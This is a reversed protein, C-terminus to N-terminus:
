DGETLAPAPQFIGSTFGTLELELKAGEAHEEVTLSNGSLAKAALLNYRETPSLLETPVSALKRAYAASKDEGEINHSQSDLGLKTEITDRGKTTYSPSVLDQSIKYKFQALKKRLVSLTPSSQGSSQSDLVLSLLTLIEDGSFYPRYLTEKNAM